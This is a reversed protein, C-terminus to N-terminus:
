TAVDNAESFFAGHVVADASADRIFEINKIIGEGRFILKEGDKLLSGVTASPSTGDARWRVDAGEVTILASKARNTVTSATFSVASDSVALNEYSVQNAM